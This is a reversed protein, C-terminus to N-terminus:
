CDIISLNITVNLLEYEALNSITKSFCNVDLLGILLSGFLKNAVLYEICQWITGRAVQQLTLCYSLKSTHIEILVLMLVLDQTFVTYHKSNVFMNVCANGHLCQKANYSDQCRLCWKVCLNQCSLCRKASLDQWCILALLMTSTVDLFRIPNVIM